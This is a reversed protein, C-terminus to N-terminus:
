LHAAITRAGGAARGAFLLVRKGDGSDYGLRLGDYTIGAGADDDGMLFGDGLAIEQRGVVLSVPVHALRGFLNFTPLTM